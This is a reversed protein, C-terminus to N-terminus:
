SRRGFSSIDSTSCLESILPAIGTSCMQRAQNQRSQLINTGPDPIYERKNM